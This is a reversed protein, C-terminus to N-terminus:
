FGLISKKYTEETCIYDVMLDESRESFCEMLQMSWCVGIVNVKVQKLSQLFLNYSNGGFGLRNGYSDITLSPLVIVIESYVSSNFKNTKEDAYNQVDLNDKYFELYSNGNTDKCNHSYFLSEVSNSLSNLNPIGKCFKVTEDYDWILLPCDKNFLKLDNKLISVLNDVVRRSAKEQWRIDLNSLVKLMDNRIIKQSKNAM